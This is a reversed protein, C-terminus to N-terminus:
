NLLRSGFIQPAYSHTLTPAVHSYCPVQCFGSQFPFGNNQSRIESTETWPQGGEARLRHHCLDHRHDCLASSACEGRPLQSASLFSPAESYGRVGLKRRDPVVGAVDCAPSWTELVCVKPSCKPGSNHCCRMWGKIWLSQLSIM